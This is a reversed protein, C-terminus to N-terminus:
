VTTLDRALSTFDSRPAFKGSTPCQFDVEANCFKNGLISRAKDARVDNISQGILLGCTIFEKRRQKEQLYIYMNRMGQNVPINAKALARRAKTEFTSRLM